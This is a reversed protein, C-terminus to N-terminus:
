AESRQALELLNHFEGFRFRPDDRLAFGATAITLARKPQNCVIDFCEHLSDDEYRFLLANDGHRLSGRHALNDEVIALCGANLANMTRDHIMDNLPSVSLVARCLPMRLLTEHMGVNVAYTASYASIYNVASPDSQILVPYQRAVDFIKLRRFAQICEEILMFCRNFTRRDITLAREGLAGVLHIELPQTLDFRAALAAERVAAALFGDLAGIASQTEEITGVVRNLSLPVMCRISRASLWDQSLDAVRSRRNPGVGGMISTMADPMCHERFYRESYRTNLLFRSNAPTSQNFETWRTSPHDLIWQIVPIKHTNAVSLFSESSLWSHDLQSNYGVIASPREDLCKGLEPRQGSPNLEVVGCSVNLGRLYEALNETYTRDHEHGSHGIVISLRRRTM